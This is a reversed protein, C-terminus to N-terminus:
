EAEVAPGALRIRQGPPLKEALVAASEGLLPHRWSPAIEALPLLVFARDQLRPHPLIPGAEGALVRDGYALLDLDLARAENRVRRIRGFAAEVRHLLALLEAPDLATEVEVVGNVFWPQDAVPVPESEYWRSRRVTRVGAAALEVLAAELQAQPDGHPGSLNSGLGIFIREDPALVM